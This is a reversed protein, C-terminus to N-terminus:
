FYKEFYKQSSKRIVQQGDDSRRDTLGNTQLSKCTSKKELYICWILCFKLYVM